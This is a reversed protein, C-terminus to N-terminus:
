HGTSTHGGGTSTEERQPLTLVKTRNATDSIKIDFVGPFKAERVSNQPINPGFDKFGM